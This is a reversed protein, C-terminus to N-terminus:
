VIAGTTAQNRAAIEESSAPHRRLVPSMEQAAVGRAFDAMAVDTHAGRRERSSRYPFRTLAPIHVGDGEPPSAGAGHLYGVAVCAEKPLHTVFATCFALLLSGAEKPLCPM